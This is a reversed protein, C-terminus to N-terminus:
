CCTASTACRSPTTTSASWRTVSPCTPTPRCPCSSCASTSATSWCCGSAAWGADRPGRRLHLRFRLPRGRVHRQRREAPHVGRRRQRRRGAPLPRAGQPRLRFRGPLLRRRRPRDALPLAVPRPIELYDMDYTVDLVTPIDFIEVGIDQRSGKQVYLVEQQLHFRRTVPLTLFVGAALGRRMTSAVTYELDRPETGQHQALGLGGKVGFSLPTFGGPIRRWAPSPRTGGVLAAAALLVPVVRAAATTLSTTLRM